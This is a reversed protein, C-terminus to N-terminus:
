ATQILDELRLRAIKYIEELATRIEENQSNTLRARFATLITEKQNLRACIVFPFGFKERYARNLETLSATEEDSMRTLGASAQERSSEATLAPAMLTRGALDPHARILELQRAGGSCAVTECLARHLDDFNAFPRRAWTAEAIWSSREFVPGIARVFDDRSFGNIQELTFRAKNM